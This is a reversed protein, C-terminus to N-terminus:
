IRVELISNIIQNFGYRLFDETTTQFQHSIFSRKNNVLEILATIGSWIIFISKESETSERVVGEEKGEEILIVLLRNIDDGAKFIGKVVDPLTEFDMEGPKFANVQNASNPNKLHYDVMAECIAAYRKVFPKIGELIEAIRNKLKELGNLVIHQMITEKSQFYAYITRRSFECDKSIDDITTSEYGKEVFLKAASELILKRNLEAIEKKKNERAMFGSEKM